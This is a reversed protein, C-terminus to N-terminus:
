EAFSTRQLRTEPSAQQSQVFAWVNDAGALWCLGGLVGILVMITAFQLTRVRKQFRREHVPDIHVRQLFEVRKAITSHLWSSLWGPKDRHIGNSRAVKELAGIFVPISMTRCGYVDAQRECRRSLFGFVIFVYLAFLLLMPLNTVLGSDLLWPELNAQCMRAFETRAIAQTIEQWAIGLALLSMLLFGLYFFMHHHKVHGIEHGFVAEVEDADLDQILRDSLVVYRLFPVTGTVMANAITGRTDWLLIDTFRLNHRRATALLRERLPSDPLRKLGLIVRLLLPFGIFASLVLMGALVSMVGQQYQLEPFLTLATEEILVLLIPPLVLLFNHRAQLAVYALRGPFPPEDANMGVEHLAKELAHFQAWALLLVAILPSLLALERGPMVDGAVWGWGLLYVALVYFGILGYAFLRRFSGFRRVIASRRSADARLDRTLRRSANGALMAFGAAGAWTLASCALVSLGLPPEPWHGQFCTLTLVLLLLFPM